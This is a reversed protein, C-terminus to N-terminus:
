HATIASKDFPINYCVHSIVEFEVIYAGLWRNLDTHTTDEKEDTPYVM